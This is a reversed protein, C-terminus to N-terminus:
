PGLFALAAAWAGPSDEEQPLHGAEPLRVLVADPISATFHEAETASMWRDQEGWLMRVPMQMRLRPAQPTAADARYARPELQMQLLQDRLARRNGERLLMEFHRDVQEASLAEPQAVLAALQAQVLARPMLSEAVWHLVPLRAVMFLPPAQWAPGRGGGPNVLLLREVRAPVQAALQLALEGGRGNGVLQVQRLKLTDMLAVVFQAQTALRYDAGPQPGTLGNGPLDVSIVRRQRGLRQAWAAWTHLSSGVDHLLLVPLPDRPNGEDRLHVVQGALEIFQSPPPAWRAVLSEPARDPARSLSVALASCILLGGVLRLLWTGAASPPEAHQRKM